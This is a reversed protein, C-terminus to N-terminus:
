PKEEEVVLSEAVFERLKAQVLDKMTIGSAPCSACAGRTAVIVRDPFLEHDERYVDDRYNYGRLDLAEFLKDTDRWTTRADWTNCIGATVPRTPDVARVHDALMRAIEAGEPQLREILENGISWIVVSPHNRDRLLMSDLDDQWWKDFHRHYDYPIKEARWVDFAEDMVLMGLRDCADLFAPSPPNHATRVANYGSAKLKEVKREEARDIAASGLPGCDHHVCGGRMNLPQGNLLFGRDV